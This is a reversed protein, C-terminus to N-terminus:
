PERYHKENTQAINLKISIEKDTMSNYNDIIFEGDDLLIKSGICEKWLFSGKNNKPVDCIDKIVKRM